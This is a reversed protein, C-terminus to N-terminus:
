CPTQRNRKKRHQYQNVAQTPIGLSHHIHILHQQSSDGYSRQDDRQEKQTEPLLCAIAEKQKKAIEKKASPTFGATSPSFKGRVLSLREKVNHSQEGESNDQDCNCILISYSSRSM